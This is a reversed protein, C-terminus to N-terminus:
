ASSCPRKSRRSTRPSGPTSTPSSRRASRAAPALGDPRVAPATPSTSRSTAPDSRTPPRSRSPTAPSRPACRADDRAAVPQGRRGGGVNVTSVTGHPPIPRAPARDPRDPGRRAVPGPGAQREGGFGIYRLPRRFHHALMWYTFVGQDVKGMQWPGAIVGCRDVVARLGYAARYEEILLEASFKTAGYLSRAGALPFDETIGAPSVGPFPQEPILEFRTDTDALAVANWRRSRISAARRSSCSRAGRHRRALELCNYAGILNSGVVYDPSGDYGALVSPEASCEVLADVAGVSLLDDLLRM